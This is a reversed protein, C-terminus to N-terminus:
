KTFEVESLLGYHDSPAFGTKPSIDKGFISVNKLKFKLEFNYPEMIYIRDCTDPIYNTNKGGWRPNNNFDLTPVIKYGNLSAHVSALDNWYPKAECGLLSQDGLLYHHVSSDGTCNFDGLLISIDVTSGQKHIYKDIAVIQKEKALVSDWPLHVNTISYKIGNLEIVANMARSNDFESSEYLFIPNTFKCKSLIALGESQDKYTFYINYPYKTKGLLEAWFNPPVEQLGILDVDINDIEKILQDIRIDINDNWVNYTAIKM